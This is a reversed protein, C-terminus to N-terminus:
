RFRPEHAIQRNQSLRIPTHAAIHEVKEAQAFFPQLRQTAEAQSAFGGPDKAVM